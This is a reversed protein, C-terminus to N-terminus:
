PKPLLGQLKPWVTELLLPQAAATPHIRDPQFLENRDGFGDFFYPVLPVKRADAVAGFMAEFERTYAPGYNPPLRM